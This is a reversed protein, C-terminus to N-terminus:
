RQKCPLIENKPPRPVRRAVLGRHLCLAFDDPSFVKERQMLVTVDGVPIDGLKADMTVVYANRVVFEGRPPLKGTKRDADPLKGTQQPVAACAAVGLSSLVAVAELFSRRSFANTNTMM